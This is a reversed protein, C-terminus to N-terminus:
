GRRLRMRIDDSSVVEAIERYLDKHHEPLGEWTDVGSFAKETGYEKCVYFIDTATVEIEHKMEYNM